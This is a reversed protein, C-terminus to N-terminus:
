QRYFSSKLVKGLYSSNVPQYNKVIAGRRRKLEKQSIMVQNSTTMCDAAGYTM